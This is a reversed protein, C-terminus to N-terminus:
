GGEATIGNGLTEADFYKAVLGNRDAIDNDALAACLKMSSFVDFLAFIVCKECHCSTEHFKLGLLDLVEGALNDGARKYVDSGFLLGLCFVLRRRANLFWRM